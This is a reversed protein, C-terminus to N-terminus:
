SAPGTPRSAPLPRPSRCPPRAPCTSQRAAPASRQRQLSRVGSDSLLPGGKKTTADYSTQRAIEALAANTSDVFAQVKDALASQSRATSVTVDVDAKSVTFTVGPMAGTFTNSPSTVDYGGVTPGVHIVADTAAQMPTGIGASAAFDESVSFASASGVTTSSLQLRYTNPAVQVAVAKVGTTASANNIASVVDSLSGSAPTVSGVPVGQANRIEIPYGSFTAPDSLPVPSSVSLQGVAVSTVHFSLSGASATADASSSVSPDSSTPAVASWTAAKGLSEASTLLSAYRTNVSQYANVVTQTTSVKTKLATQPLAEAQMLSNILATTDLGSILGDVSFGAM